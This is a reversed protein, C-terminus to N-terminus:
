LVAGWRDFVVSIELPTKQKNSDFISLMPWVKSYLRPLILTKESACNPKLLKNQQCIAPAMCILTDIYIPTVPDSAPHSQANMLDWLFHKKCHSSKLIALFAGLNEPSMM